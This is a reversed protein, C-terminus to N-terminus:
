LTGSASPSEAHVQTMFRKLHSALVESRVDMLEKHGAPVELHEITGTFLASLGPAGASRLAQMRMRSSIIVVPGDYPQPKHKRVAKELALATRVSASAYVPEDLRPAIRGMAQKSKLRNLLRHETMQGANMKFPRDPPDLLLLPLVTEDAERLSRAIVNAVFAGVCLAGIFYPGRPRCARMERLYDAAMAEITAHPEQLGDLGRAQFAWVPQDDGLLALFRPSVFAHGLRGHILFLPTKSGEKKLPVLIPLPRPEGSFRERSARIGAAIGSVTADDYLDPPSTGFADRLRTQLEVASLSDGGLLFFDDERGVASQKLLEGFIEAITEEIDDRPPEVDRKGQPPIESLAKRDIKGSSTLPLADLFMFAAPLMYLPVHKALNRRVVVPNREADQGLVLYAVLRDAERSTEGAALVAAKRVGPCACLAAEVETLDVSHGRIKVRSGQRGLFHLNGEDDVRGLDRTLYCRSGPASADESFTSANLEPRKWYGPSVHPSCVIIEGVETPRALAGDERRILVRVGEPSRGVPVIRGSPVMAARAVRHQAIISAETAGLQNILMCHERTHQRFLAADSDFLAEGALDIARLSALVQGQALGGMLERFVTPVTHLVSVRERDIWHSLKPIGDRRMDYACVTGGNLLGAFINLNSAGFSLSFVLSLRDAEVIELAKAYADAFCLLNRQTQCVGKPVGTSGSTYVLYATADPLVPSRTRADNGPAMTDVDFVQCGPSVLSRARELLAQETLLVVPASDQLIFRLRKDPDGADLSIYARGCRSAGLMAKIAAIKDRFLLCVFGSRDGGAAAVGRAVNAAALDLESYTVEVGDGCLAVKDPLRAVVAAFRSGITDPELASIM